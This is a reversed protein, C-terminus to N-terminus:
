PPIFVLGESARKHHKGEQLLWKWGTVKLTAGGGRDAGVVSPFSWGECSEELGEAVGALFMPKQHHQPLM